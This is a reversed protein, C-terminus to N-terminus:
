WSVQVGTTLLRDTKVLDASPPTRNYKIQYSAKLAIHSSIPAVLMTESTIRHNRGSRLDPLFDFSEQFYSKEGFRHRYRFAARGTAFQDSETVTEDPNLYQREQVFGFGGELQLENTKSDLASWAFGAGEEVRRAIGAFRDREYGVFAYTTVRGGAPYEGRLRAQQSNANQEGGNRGYILGFTQTFLLRRSRLVLRDGVNITTVETNGAANVLGFDGTFQIPPPPEQGALPPVVFVPLVLFASFRLLNM